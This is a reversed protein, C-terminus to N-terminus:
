ITKPGFKELLWKSILTIPVAVLTLLLGLASYYPYEARTAQKVGAFLYYGFTELQGHDSARYGFFSFISMQNTFLGVVNVVMFTVFTPWILPVVISVLERFPKVGDLQGSEIVSESISSMAGSYMLVQTGFGIWINFFMITSRTIKPESLLGIMEKGFIEKVLAPIAIDAFYMFIIVFVVSSIIHPTYLIFKFTSSLYKQKYIYYSFLIAFGSGFLMTWFFLELSNKISVDFIHERFEKFVSSFNEWNAFVFGGKDYDLRQFALAFSNFNVYIYFVIFQILPLAIMAYYFIWKERSRM